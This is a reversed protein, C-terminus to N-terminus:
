ASAAALETDAYIDRMPIDLEFTALHLTEDLSRLITPAEIWDGDAGRSWM